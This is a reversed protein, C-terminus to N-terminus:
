TRRSQPEQVRSLVVSQLTQPTLKPRRASSPKPSGHARVRLSLAMYPCSVVEQRVVPRLCPGRFSYGPLRQQELMQESVCLEGRCSEVPLPRPLSSDGTHFALVASTRQGLFLSRVSIDKRTKWM